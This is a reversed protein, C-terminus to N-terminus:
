VPSVCLSSNCLLAAFGVSASWLSSRSLRLLVSRVIASRCAPAARQVVTDTEFRQRGALGRGIKGLCWVWTEEVRCQPPALIRRDIIRAATHTIVTAAGASACSVNHSVETSFQRM